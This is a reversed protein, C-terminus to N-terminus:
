VAEWLRVRQLGVKVNCWSCRYERGGRPTTVVKVMSNHGHDMPDRPMLSYKPPKRYAMWRRAVAKNFDVWRAERVTRLHKEVFEDYRYVAIEGVMGLMAGVDFAWAEASKLTRFLKVIDFRFDVCWAGKKTLLDTRGSRAHWAIVYPYSAKAM